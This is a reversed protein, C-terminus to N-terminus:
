IGDLAAQADREFKSLEVCSQDMAKKYAKLALDCALQLDELKAGQEAAAAILSRALPKAKPADELLPTYMSM